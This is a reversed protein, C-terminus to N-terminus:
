RKVPDKTYCYNRLTGRRHPIMSLITRKYRECTDDDVYLFKCTIAGPTSSVVKECSFMMLVDYVQKRKYESQAPITVSYNYLQDGM